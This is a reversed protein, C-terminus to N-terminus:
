RLRYANVYGENDGTVLVQENDGLMGTVVDFPTNGRLPFGAVPQLEPTYLMVQNSITSVIGIYPARGPWNVRFGIQNCTLPLTTENQLELKGNTSYMNTSDIFVFTLDNADGTCVFSFYDPFSDVKTETANGEMDVRYLTGEPDANIMEFSSGMDNMFFPRNFDARLRIPKQRRDGKRNYYLLTGDINTLILYDKGNVLIHQMPHPVTGVRPKPNWGPLPKGNAYYGYVKYNTCAVFYRYNKKGDYDVVTLGNAAEAPLKTPFPSVDNGLRDIIYLYQDTNFILQLKDNKYMDIQTADGMIQGKVQRRWLIKGAKDILYINDKKDQVFVEYEGTNHNVVFWPRGNITSDLKTRWINIDTNGSAVPAPNSGTYNIYANTFYFGEYPSYQLAAPSFSKLTNVTQKGDSLLPQLVADMLAPSLYVFMSSTTALNKSFQQYALDNHLTSGNQMAAVFSQLTNRTNAFIIHDRAVLFYPNEIESSPSKFMDQLLTGCKIQGGIYEGFELKEDGGTLRALEQLSAGAQEENNISVVLFNDDAYDEDFSELFGSVQSGTVLDKLYTYLKISDHASQPLNNFTHYVFLATNAPLVLDSKFIKEPGGAYEDLWSSDTATYGTLLMDNQRFSIDLASWTAWNDLLGQLSKSQDPMWILDTLQHLQSYNILVQMDATNSALQRLRAFTKDELISPKELVQAVSEEVLFPSRSAVVIGPFWTATLSTGNPLKIDFLQHDEYMRSKARFGMEAAHTLATFIQEGSSSNAEIIYLQDYEGKAAPYAAALIDSGSLTYDAVRFLSDVWTLDHKIKGGFSGSDMVTRYAAKDLNELSTTIDSFSVVLSTNPLLADYVSRQRGDKLALWYYSFLAAALLLLLVIAIGLRKM